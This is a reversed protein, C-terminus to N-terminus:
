GAQNALTLAGNALARAYRALSRVDVAEPWRDNINHYADSDGAITVFNGGARQVRGSEGRAGSTDGPWLPTKSSPRPPMFAM